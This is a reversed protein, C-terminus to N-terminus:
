CPVSRITTQSMRGTRRSSRTRRGDWSSRMPRHPGSRSSRGWPRTGTASPGDATLSGGTRDEDPGGPGQMVGDLTLFTGVVVTAMTTRGERKEKRGRFRAPETSTPVLALDDTPLGVRADDSIAAAGCGGFDGSGVGNM